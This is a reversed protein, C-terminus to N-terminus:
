AYQLYSFSDSFIVLCSEAVRLTISCTFFAILEAFVGILFINVIWHPNEAVISYSIESCRSHLYGYGSRPFAGLYRITDGYLICHRLM